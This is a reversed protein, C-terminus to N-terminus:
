QPKPKEEKTLEKIKTPTIQTVNIPEVIKKLSFGIFTIIAILLIVLISNVIWLPSKM